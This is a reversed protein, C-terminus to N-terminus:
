SANYVTPRLRWLVRSESLTKIPVPRALLWWPNEATIRDASQALYTLLETEREM